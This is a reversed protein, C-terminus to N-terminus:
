ANLFILIILIIDITILIICISALIISFHEKIELFIYESVWKIKKLLKKSKDRM